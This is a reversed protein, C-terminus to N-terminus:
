RQRKNMDYHQSMSTRHLTDRRRTIRTKARVNGDCDTRPPTLAALARAIVYQAVPATPMGCHGTHLELVEAHPDLCARWDVVGDRRSYLAVRREDAGAPPAGPAPDIQYRM